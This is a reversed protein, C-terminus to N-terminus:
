PSLARLACLLHEIFPLERSTGMGGLIGEEGSVWGGGGCLAKETGQQGVGACEADHPGEGTTKPRM